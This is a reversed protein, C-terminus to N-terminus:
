RQRANGAAKQQPAPEASNAREAEILHKVESDWAISIDNVADTEVRDAAILNMVFEKTYMLRKCLPSGGNLAAQIKAVFSSHCQTIYRFTEPLVRFDSSSKKPQTSIYNKIEKVKVGVCNDDDDCVMKYDDIGYHIVKPLRKEAAVASFSFGIGLGAILLLIRNRRLTSM